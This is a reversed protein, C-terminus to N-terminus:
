LTSIECSPAEHVAAACPAPFPGVVILVNVGTEAFNTRMVNVAFASSAGAHDTCFRLIKETGGAAARVCAGPLCQAGLM